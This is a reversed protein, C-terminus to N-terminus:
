CKNTFTEGYHLYDHSVKNHLMEIITSTLEWFEWTLINIEFAGYLAHLSLQSLEERLRPTCFPGACMCSFTLYYYYWYIDPM